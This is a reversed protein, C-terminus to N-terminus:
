KEGPGGPFSPRKAGSAAVTRTLALQWEEPGDKLWASLFLGPSTAEIHRLLPLPAHDNILVFSEGPLLRELAAFVTVHREPPILARLDVVTAADTSDTVTPM